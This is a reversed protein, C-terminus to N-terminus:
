PSEPAGLRPNKLALPGARHHDLQRAAASDVAPYILASPFQPIRLRVHPQKATFPSAVKSPFQGRRAQRGRRGGGYQSM